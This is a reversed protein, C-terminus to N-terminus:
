KLIIEAVIFMNSFIRSSCYAESIIKLIIEPLITESPRRRLSFYNQFLRIECRLAANSKHTSRGAGAPEDPSLVKGAVGIVLWASQSCWEMQSEDGSIKTFYKDGHRKSPGREEMGEDPIM